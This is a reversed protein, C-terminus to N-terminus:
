GKLVESMIYSTILPNEKRDDVATQSELNDDDDGECFSLLEFFKECFEKDGVRM